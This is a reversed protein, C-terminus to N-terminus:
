LQQLQHKNLVDILLSAGRERQERHVRRAKEIDGSQIIEVLKRHAEVSVRKPKSELLRLAVFHARQALDRFDNIAKALIANGTNDGLSRHFDEDALCWCNLDQNDVASNMAALIDNFRDASCQSAALLGVAEVELGTIVQYIDQLRKASLPLVRMGRKPIIEVLGEAKLRLFAERVPTRSMDLEEIVRNLEIFEGASFHGALLQEKISNYAQDTYSQTDVKITESTNM